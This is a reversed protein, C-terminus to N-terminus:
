RKWPEVPLYRIFWEVTNNWLYNWDHELMFHGSDPFEIYKLREPMDRYYPKLVSNFSRAFEPPVSLDMGANQALLATPFFREPHRHPSDDIESTWKPSGLIPASVKIRSDVTVASYAIYGGMSIGCVGIKDPKSWGKRTLNDIVRPVEGATKRVMDLFTKQFFNDSSMLGDFDPYIREGHGVNDIGVALFGKEALNRLEKLNGEKCSRLGHYFLVTGNNGAKEPSGTYLIVAPASDIWLNEQKVEVTSMNREGKHM